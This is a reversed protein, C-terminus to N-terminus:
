NTNSKSAQLTRTPMRSRKNILAVKPYIVGHLKNMKNQKFIEAINLPPQYVKGEVSRGGSDVGRVIRDDRKTSESIEMQQGGGESKGV